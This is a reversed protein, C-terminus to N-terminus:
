HGVPTRSGMQQGRLVSPILWSIDGNLQLSPERGLCWSIWTCASVAVGLDLDLWHHSM